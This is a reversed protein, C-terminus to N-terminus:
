TKSHNYKHTRGNKFDLCPYGHKATATALRVRAEPDM